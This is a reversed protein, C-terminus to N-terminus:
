LLIINYYASDNKIYFLSLILLIIIIFVILNRIEIHNHILISANDIILISNEEGKAFKGMCPILCTTLYHLFFDSFGNINMAALLTEVWGRRRRAAKRDKATEDM